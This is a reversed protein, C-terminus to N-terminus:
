SLLQKRKLVYKQGLMSPVCSQRPVLILREPRDFGRPSRHDPTREIRDLELATAHLKGDPTMALETRRNIQVSALRLAGIGRHWKLTRCKLDTAGDQSRTICDDKM